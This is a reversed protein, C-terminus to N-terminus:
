GDILGRITLFSLLPILPMGLIAFYDGVVGSFLRVGEEEYHYCGVAGQVKPWNRSLYDDLYADSFGRMQLKVESVHRWVAQGGECAVAASFLSHRQGRLKTLVERAEDLSASKSVTEGNVALIQDCGIVLAEPSKASVRLAKMEALADSLDRASTGEALLSAKLSEEDVPATQVRFPVNADNLMKRRSESGSALIIEQRMNIVRYIFWKYVNPHNQPFAFCSALKHTLRREQPAVAIGDLNHTSSIMNGCM